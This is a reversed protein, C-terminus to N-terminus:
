EGKLFAYYAQARAVIDKDSLYPGRIALELAMRRQFAHDETTQVIDVPTQPPTPGPAKVEPM